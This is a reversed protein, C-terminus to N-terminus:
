NAHGSVGLFIISAMTDSAIVRAAFDALLKIPSRCVYRYRRHIFGIILSFYELVYRIEPM